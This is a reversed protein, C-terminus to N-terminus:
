PTQRRLKFRYKRGVENTNGSEVCYYDDFRRDAYVNCLHSSAMVRAQQIEGVLVELGRRGAEAVDIQNRTARLANQTRDFMSSLVLVIIAIFSVAVVIELLTMEVATMARDFSRVRLIM